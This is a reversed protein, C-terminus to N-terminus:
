NVSVNIRTSMHPVMVFDILVRPTLSDGFIHVAERHRAIRGFIRSYPRLCIAVTGLTCNWLFNKTTRNVLIWHIYYYNISPYYEPSWLIIPGGCRQSITYHGVASCASQLWAVIIDHRSNKKTLNRYYDIINIWLEYKMADHWSLKIPKCEFSQFFSTFIQTPLLLSFELIYVFLFSFNLVVNWCM